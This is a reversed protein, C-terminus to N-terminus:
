TNSEHMAAEERTPNFNTEERVSVSYVSADVVSIEMELLKAIEAPDDTFVTITAIFQRLPTSM